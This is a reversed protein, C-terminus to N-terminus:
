LRVPALFDYAHVVACVPSPNRGEVPEMVPKVVIGLQVEAVPNRQQDCAVPPDVYVVPDEVRVVAKAIDQFYEEFAGNEEPAQIPQGLPGAM